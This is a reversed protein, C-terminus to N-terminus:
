PVVIKPDNKTDASPELSYSTWDGDKGVVPLDNNGKALPWPSPGFVEPKTFYLKCPTDPQFIVKRPQQKGVHEEPRCHFIPPTRVEIRIILNGHEDHGPTEGTTDNTVPLTATSDVTTM